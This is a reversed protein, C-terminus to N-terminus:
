KKGEAVIVPSHPQHCTDCAVGASHEEAMVQPFAAPKATNAQHCRACLVAADLKIPAVSAPDAAHSALAGHCGECAVRAHKGAIKKSLVDAHCEECAQHGAFTIPRAAIEGIADARYHGYKGFSHPVLMGRLAVFIALGAIFVAALRFIHGSNKLSNM